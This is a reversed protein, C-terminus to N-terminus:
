RKAKPKKASVGAHKNKWMGGYRYYPHKSDGDVVGGSVDKWCKKTCVFYWSYTKEIQCRVLVDNPTHCLDCPKRYASPSKSRKQSKSDVPLGVLKDTVSVEPQDTAMIDCSTSRIAFKETSPPNYGKIYLSRYVRKGGLHRLDGVCFNQLM